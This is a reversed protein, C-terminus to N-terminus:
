FLGRIHNIRGAAILLRHLDADTLPIGKATRIAEIAILTSERSLLELADRAPLQMPRIHRQDNENRVWAGLQKAAEIFSQGYAAMQYAVVNGGKAGCLSMCVFAGNAVKIRMSDRGGHFRCETTKWPSRHSGTLTLGQSEYYSIPDPLHEREFTM